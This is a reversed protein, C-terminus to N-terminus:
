GRGPAGDRGPQPAITHEGRLAAIEAKLEAQHRDARVAVHVLALGLFLVGGIPSGLYALFWAFAAYGFAGIPSGQGRVIRNIIESM